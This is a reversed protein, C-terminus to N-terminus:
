NFLLQANCLVTGESNKVAFLQKNGDKANDIVVRDNYIAEHHYNIDVRKVKHLTEFPNEVFDCMWELYKSSNTHQNVDIDSFQVVHQTSRESEFSPVRMIPAIKLPENRVVGSCDIEKTINVMTRQVFDIMSWNTSASIIIEGSEDYIDFHRFTFIRNVKEVWTDIDITEGCKPLRKIEIAIYCLVWSLNRERLKWLGFGRQDADDGAVQLIFDCLSKLSIFGSFDADRPNIYIRNM